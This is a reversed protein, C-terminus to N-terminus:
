FFSLNQLARFAAEYFNGNFPDPRLFEIELGPSVFFPRLNWSIQAGVFLNGLLWALFTHTGARRTAAFERVCSLLRVHALIGALAIVTTHLLLTTAHGVLAGDSDPGPMNLSLFLIVPSLVGLIVSMIAYGTLLFRLSQRLGIESGLVLGLLGNLLGNVCLTLFIIAPFKIAVYCSMEWGQRFGIVSGYIGCGLTILVICVPISDRRAERIWSTLLHKEGRCLAGASQFLHALLTM